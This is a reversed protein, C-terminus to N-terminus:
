KGKLIRTANKRLFNNTEGIFDYGSIGNSWYQGSAGYKWGDLGHNNIDYDWNSSTFLSSLEGVMGYGYDLFYFFNVLSGDSTQKLSNEGLVFYFEKKSPTTTIAQQIDNQYLAYESDQQKNTYTTIARAVGNKLTENTKDYLKKFNTELKKDIINEIKRTVSDLDSTHIKFTIM